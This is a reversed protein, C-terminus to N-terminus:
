IVAGWLPFDEKVNFFVYYFTISLHSKFCCGTNIFIAKFRMFEEKADLLVDMMILSNGGTLRELKETPSRLEGSSFTPRGM